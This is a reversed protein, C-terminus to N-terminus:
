ISLTTPLIYINPIGTEKEGGRLNLHAMGKCGNLWVYEFKWLHYIKVAM